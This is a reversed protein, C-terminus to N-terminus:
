PLRRQHYLRKWYAARRPEIEALLVYADELLPELAIAKEANAKAQLPQKAAFLAAALNLRRSSDEPQEDVARQFAQVAEEV